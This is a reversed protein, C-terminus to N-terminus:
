GNNWKMSNHGKTLVDSTPDKMKSINMQYRKIWNVDFPQDSHDNPHKELNFINHDITMDRFTFKMSGSQYNILANSTALFPWGLIVLIQGSPNEMPATKFIVFNVPFIFEGVKILVDEIEGKPIKVSRDALQLTIGTPKLEGVGLQKCVLYPLLNVSVGSDQLAKNSM